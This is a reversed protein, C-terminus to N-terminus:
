LEDSGRIFGVIVKGRNKVQKYWLSAELRQAAKEYDRLEIEKLTNKFTKFKSFGLNYVMDVLAGQKKLPLSKFFKFNRHLSDYSRSLEEKLWRMAVSKSVKGDKLLKNEEVSLPNSEINRGYGITDYGAPCKYVSARFGEFEATLPTIFELVQEKM